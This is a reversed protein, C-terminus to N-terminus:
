NNQMKKYLLVGKDDAISNMYVILIQSLKTGNLRIQEM